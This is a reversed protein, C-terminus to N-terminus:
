VIVVSSPAPTRGAKRTWTRGADLSVYLSGGWDCLAAVSDRAAICRTDVKGELWDPLGNGLLSLPGHGDVPRRYVAGQPSFPDVSAAVLVDDGVFAVASCHPAHLGTAEVDWTAGGDHSTCLGVGSAAAVVSARSPHARVDHVDTDVDITPAWTAGGDVARPVGGVHVNALLVGDRTVAMSRVGLPPGMYRGDVMAGGPYWRDRGAVSDFARVPALGGDADVRLIRADDTGVYVEDRRAVCCALDVQAEALATWVGAADRRRLSRGAVIALAGGRGDPALANVRQGALEHDHTAEGLVHVGDGWTAVLVTPIM